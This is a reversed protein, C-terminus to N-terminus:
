TNKMGVVLNPVSFPPFKQPLLTCVQAYDDCSPGVSSQHGPGARTSPPSYLCGWRDHCSLDMCHFRPCSSAQARASTQYRCRSQSRLLAKCRLSEKCRHRATSASSLGWSSVPNERRIRRIKEESFIRDLGPFNRDSPGYSMVMPRPVLNM